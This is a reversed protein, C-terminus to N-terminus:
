IERLRDFDMRGDIPAAIVNQHVLGPFINDGNGAYNDPNFQYPLHSWCRYGLEKLVKIEAVAQETTGLRFYVNPRCRRMTEDAGALLAVLTGPENVKLLHLAELGLRDVSTTNVRESGNAGANPLLSSLNAQGSERGLWSSYTHVNVLGNLALNACLQQFELRRAEAVHVQGKDGVNHSLWLTHAGYDGGFELVTQGEEVFGSLLDLEQEAWEGYSHLSRATLNTATIAAMVGYRTNWLRQSNDFPLANTNM